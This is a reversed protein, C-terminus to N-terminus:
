PQGLAKVNDVSLCLDRDMVIELQLWGDGKDKAFWQPSAFGDMEDLLGGLFLANAAMSVRPPVGLMNAEFATNGSPCNDSQVTRIQARPKGANMTYYRWQVNMIKWALTRLYQYAAGGFGPTSSVSQDHIGVISASQTFGFHIHSSLFDSPNGAFALDGPSTEKWEIAELPNTFTKPTATAYVPFVGNATEPDADVGMIQICVRNGGSEQSLTWDQWGSNEDSDPDTWCDSPENPGVYFGDDITLVTAMNSVNGIGSDTDIFTEIQTGADQLISDNCDSMGQTAIQISVHPRGSSSKFSRTCIRYQGYQANPGNLQIALYDSNSVGPVGTSSPDYSGIFTGNGNVLISTEGNEDQVDMTSIEDWNNPCSGMDNLVIVAQYMKTTGSPASTTTGGGTNGGGGGTWATDQITGDPFKFGDGKAHVTGSVELNAESAGDAGAVTFLDTYLLSQTKGLALTFDSNWNTGDHGEFQLQGSEQDANIRWSRNLEHVDSHLFLGADSHTGLRLIADSDTANEAIIDLAATPQDHGIGVLGDASIAFPAHGWTEEGPGQSSSITFADMDGLGSSLLWNHQTSNAMSDLYVGSGLNQGFRAVYDGGNATVSLPTNFNPSIKSGAIAADDAVHANGITGGGITLTNYTGAVDGAFTTTQTLDDTKDDDYNSLASLSVYENHSHDSASFESAAKGGLALANAAQSAQMAYPVSSIPEKAMENDTAVKIGVHLAAVALNAPTLSNTANAGLKVHFRGDVVTVAQTEQWFHADITNPYLSFTIDVTGSFAAGGTDLKGSYNLHNPVAALVSGTLLCVAFCLPAFTFRM